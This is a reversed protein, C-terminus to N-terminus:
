FAMGGGAAAQAAAQGFGGIAGSLVGRLGSEAVLSQWRMSMAPVRWERETWHMLGARAEFDGQRYHDRDALRNEAQAHHALRAREDGYLELKDVFDTDTV